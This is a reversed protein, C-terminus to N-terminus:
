KSSTTPNASNDALVRDRSNSGTLIMVRQGIALAPTMGQVVAISSGTDLKIIYQTGNQKGAAKGVAGGAAGGAVAGGVSGLGNAVAGGGITSGLIAGAIGGAIMGVTKDGQSDIHVPITQVIVGYRVNQSQGSSGDNYSDTDLDDACGVLALMSIAIILVSTIKKM